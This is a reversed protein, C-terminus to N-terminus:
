GSDPGPDRAGSALMAARARSLLDDIEAAGADGKRVLEELRGAEERTRQAADALAREAGESLGELYGAADRRLRGAAEVFGERLRQVRASVLGRYDFLLGRCAERRQRLSTAPDRRAANRLRVLLERPVTVEVEPMSRAVSGPPIADEVPPGGAGEGLARSLKGYHRRAGELSDTASRELGGLLERVSELLASLQTRCDRSLELTAFRYLAEQDEAGDLLAAASDATRKACVAILTDMRSATEALPGGVMRLAEAGAAPGDSVVFARRLKRQAEMFAELGESASEVREVLGRREEALGDARAALALRSEETLVLEELLRGAEAPTRPM